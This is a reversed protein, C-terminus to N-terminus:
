GDDRDRGAGACREVRAGATTLRREAIDLAEACVDTGKFDRGLEVAAVGASASGMFPDIGPAGPETSQEILIRSVGVPKEAPYGGFVRPEEIIDPTALNHLKRKGKEFFLILEYRSRYHYGMGIRQKDWVLPKWFRFGAAEALPKAVFMTEQDCFLYFHSHKRLVRYAQDFLEPFRSNPFVQFWDNSSAKSHKLRTTTGRARHKELSEYAPDTVILDVSAPELGSLWAVADACSVRADREPGGVAPAVPRPGSLEPAPGGELPDRGPLFALQDMTSAAGTRVSSARGTWARSCESRPQESM